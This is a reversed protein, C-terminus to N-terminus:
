KSVYFKRRAEEKLLVDMCLGMELLSDVINQLELDELCESIKVSYSKPFKEGLEDIQYEELDQSNNLREMYKEGWMDMRETLVFEEPLKEM